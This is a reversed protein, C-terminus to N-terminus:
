DLSDSEGTTNEDHKVESGATVQFALVIRRHGSSDFERLVQKVDVDKAIRSHIHMLALGNLSESGMTSRLYTKLRKFTSFSREASAVSVPM